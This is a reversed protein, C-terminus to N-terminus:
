RINHQNLFNRIYDAEEAPYSQWAIRHYNNQLFKRDTKLKTSSRFIAPLQVQVAFRLFRLEHNEPAFSIAQDLLHLSKSLYKI